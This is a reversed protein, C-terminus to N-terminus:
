KKGGFAKDYYKKATEPYIHTYVKRTIDTGDAHGVIKQTIAEPTGANALESVVFHRFMKSGGSEFGACRFSRQIARNAQSNGIGEFYTKNKDFSRPLSRLIEMLPSCIPIAFEVGTKGRGLEVNIMREKFNINKPTLKLVDGTDMGTYVQIWFILFYLEGFPGKGNRTKTSQQKVFQSIKEIDEMTLNNTIKKGKNKYELKPFKFNENVCQMMKLLIDMEKSLTNKPAGKEERFDKYALVTAKDMGSIKFGEFFPMLHKKLIGNKSAIYTADRGKISELYLDRAKEITANSHIYVGNVLRDRLVGVAMIAKWREQKYANLPDCYYQGKYYFHAYWKNRVTKMMKDEGKIYEYPYRLM